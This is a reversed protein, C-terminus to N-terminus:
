KESFAPCFSQKIRAELPTQTDTTTKNKLWLDQDVAKQSVSYPQIYVATEFHRAVYSNSGCDYGNPRFPADISFRVIYELLTYDIHLGYLKVLQNFIM